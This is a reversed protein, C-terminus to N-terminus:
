DTPHYGKITFFLAKVPKIKKTRNKKGCNIEKAWVLSEM